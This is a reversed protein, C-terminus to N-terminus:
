GLTRKRSQIFADLDHVNVVVRRLVRRRQDGERPRLAPLEVRPILGQLVYDRVTWFSVGLYAAAAHLDVLRAPLGASEDSLMRREERVCGSEVSRHPNM